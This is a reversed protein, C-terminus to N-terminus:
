LQLYVHLIRILSSFLIVPVPPTRFNKLLSYVPVPVYVPQKEFFISPFPFNLSKRLFPNQSAFLLFFFSPFKLMESITFIDLTLESSEGIKGLARFLLTVIQYQLNFKQLAEYNKTKTNEKPEVEHDSTSINTRNKELM